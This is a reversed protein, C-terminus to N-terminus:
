FSPELVLEEELLKKIAEDDIPRVVCWSQGLRQLAFWQGAPAGKKKLRHGNRLLSEANEKAVPTTGADPDPKADEPTKAGSAPAPSTPTSAHTQTQSQAM